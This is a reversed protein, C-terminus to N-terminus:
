SAPGRATTRQTLRVAIVGIAIGAVVGLILYLGGLLQDFAVPVTIGAILGVTNRTRNKM